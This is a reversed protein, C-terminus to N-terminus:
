TADGEVDHEYARVWELVWIVWAVKSFGDPYATPDHPTPSHPSAASPTTPNGRTEKKRTGLSDEGGGIGNRVRYLEGWLAQMEEGADKYNVGGLYTVSGEGGM